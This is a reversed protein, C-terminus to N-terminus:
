IGCLEIKNKGARKIGEIRKQAMTLIEDLSHGHDPFGSIAGSITIKELLRVNNEEVDLREIRSKIREAVNRAGELNTEPLYAVFEEGGFRAVIDIGRLMNTLIFGIEKLIRDGFGHGYTSNIRAFDDLDFLIISFYRNYRISRNLEEELRKVFYRYNYLSTLEDIITQKRLEENTTSVKQYMTELNEVRSKMTEVRNLIAQIRFSLESPDFPKPLYDDAGYKFGEIKHEVEGKVTLFIIPILKTTVMTRLMSCTKIGDMVPMIMDLLIIQPNERLAMEICQQGDRAELVEFQEAELAVKLMQRFTDDDDAILVRSKMAPAEYSIKGGRTVLFRPVM